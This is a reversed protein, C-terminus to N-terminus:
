AIFAPKLCDTSVTREGDNIRIIFTRENVRRVVEHPGTYPPELPRR